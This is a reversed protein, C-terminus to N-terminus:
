VVIGDEEEEELVLSMLVSIDEQDEEDSYECRIAYPHESWQDTDKNYGPQSRLDSVQLITAGFSFLDNGISIRTGEMFQQSSRFHVGGLSIDLLRIDLVQSVQLAKEGNLPIRPTDRRDFFDSTM